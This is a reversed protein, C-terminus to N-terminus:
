SISTERPFTWGPLFKWCCGSPGSNFM